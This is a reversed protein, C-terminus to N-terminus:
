KSEDRPKMENTRRYSYTHVLYSAYATINDLIRHDIEGAAIKEFVESFVDLLEPYGSLLTQFERLPDHRNDDIVDSLSVGLWDTILKLTDIDISDGNLVRSVTTHSIGIQSGTERLSLNQSQIRVLLMQSIKPNM